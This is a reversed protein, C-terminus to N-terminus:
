QDEWDDDGAPEGQCTGPAPAPLAKPLDWPRVPAPDCRLAVARAVAETVPTMAYLAAGSFFKTVAPGDAQPIDIRGLKAGFQEEQSVRGALRVHGLLEVIAWGEWPKTETM